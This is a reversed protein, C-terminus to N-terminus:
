VKAVKQGAGLKAVEEAAMRRAETDASLVDEM